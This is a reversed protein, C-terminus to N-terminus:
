EFQEYAAETEPLKFVSEITDPLRQSSILILRQGARTMAMYLKRAQEEQRQAHEDESAKPLRGASLLNELGVLFVVSAELGTATELYVVRLYDQGYGNPPLKKHEKRNLWWIRDLGIRKGIQEVLMSKNVKDGYIVLLSSLSLQGQSAVAIENVVRDMADQPSDAYILIPPIGSEMGEFDPELFDESDGQTVQALIHSAAQLIARSTRYSKRLKKTRGAVDLGVSKWSLRSKM